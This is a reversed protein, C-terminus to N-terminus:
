GARRRSTSTKQKAKRNAHLRRLERQMGTLQIGAARVQEGTWDWPRLWYMAKGSCLRALQTEGVAELDASARDWLNVLDFQRNNGVTGSAIVRQTATVADSLSKIAAARRETKSTRTAKWTQLVGVITAFAGIVELGPLM